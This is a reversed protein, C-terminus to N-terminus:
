TVDKEQKSYFGFEVHAPGSIAKHTGAEEDADQNGGGRQNNEPCV